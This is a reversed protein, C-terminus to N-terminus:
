PFLCSKFPCRWSIKQWLNKDDFVEKKRTKKSKGPSFKLKKLIDVTNNLLETANGIDTIGTFCANGTDIIGTFCGNGTDTATIPYGFIIVFRAATM